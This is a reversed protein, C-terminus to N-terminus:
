LFSWINSFSSSCIFFGDSFCPSRRVDSLFAPSPWGRSLSLCSLLPDPPKDRCDGPNRCACADDVGLHDSLWVLKEPAKWLTLDGFEPFGAAQRRLFKLTGCAREALDSTDGRVPGPRPLDRRFDPSRRPIKRILKIQDESINMQAYLKLNENIIGTISCKWWGGRNLLRDAHCLLPRLRNRFFLVLSATVFRRTRDFLTEKCFRRSCSRRDARDNIPRLIPRPAGTSQPPKVRGSLAAM